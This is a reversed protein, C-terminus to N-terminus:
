EFEGTLTQLNALAIRYRAEGADSANRAQTLSNEADVVELASAEGAGYRLNTLRLSQSALSVSNQLLSLQRHATEAESWFNRLNALATRQAESLKVRALSRRLEAQKVQSRVSGWDFIPLNLTAEAAYGLNDYGESRVALQQADLGYWYDLSLTPLHGSRAVTVDQEAVRLSAMAARVEPNKRSALRAADAFGPLPPAAPMDDVVTFDQTFDPFLLVSLALKAKEAALRAEQLGQRRDNFQLQAKIVDSHATEGGHELKESLDVFRRAEEAAARANAQRREAAILGYYNQTVTLALGRAAIEEKARALALAARSRRYGAVKGLGIEEHANAQAVYEHVGNNAIFVGTPSGNGETYVFSTAARVAPLLAARAQVRKERALKTDTMASLFRGSNARARRLADQLNIVPAPHSPSQSSRVRADPAAAESATVSRQGLAPAGATLLLGAALIARRAGPM